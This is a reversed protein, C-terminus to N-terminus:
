DFLGQGVKPEKTAGATFNKINQLKNKNGHFASEDGEVEKPEPENRIKGDEAKRKVPKSAGTTGVTVPKSVNDPHGKKSNVLVHGEDSVEVEEKVMEDGEEEEEEEEEEHHTSDNALEEPDHEIDHELDKKLFALLKECVEIAEEHTLHMEEEHGMEESSDAAADTAPAVAEMEEQTEAFPIRNIADEYLQDFKPKSMNTFKPKYNYKSSKTASEVVKEESTTIKANEKQRVNKDSTGEEAKKMVKPDSGPDEVNDVKKFNNGKLGEPGSKSWVPNVEVGEEKKVAEKSAGGGLPTGAPTAFKAENLYVSTDTLKVDNVTNETVITDQVQHKAAAIDSYMNGLDSLSKIKM